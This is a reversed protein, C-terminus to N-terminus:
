RSPPPPPRRPPPGAAGAGQRPSLAGAEDGRLSAWRERDFSIFIGTAEATLRDGAHVTGSTRIKRGDVEDVGGSFTLETHLPTPSRYVVTLTGTMGPQETASQASGLLEDFTAAVWGGHVCGPPGEYASGFTARGRVRGDVFEIDLPPALPNALGLVPSHDFFAGPDDGGALAEAFAEYSSRGGPGLSAAVAELADAAAALTAEDDTNAVMRDTVVRTAAAMRRLEVRRGPVQVRGARLVEGWPPEGPPGADGHRTM